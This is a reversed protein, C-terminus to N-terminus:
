CSGADNQGQESGQSAAPFAAARPSREFGRDVGLSFPNALQFLLEAQGM